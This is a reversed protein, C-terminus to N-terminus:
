RLQETASRGSASPSVRMNRRMMELGRHLRSTATGYPIDLIEAVEPLPLDLYYHLQHPFILLADGEELSFLNTEVGVTGGERLCLILVFRDHQDYKGSVQSIGEHGGLEHVPRSRHFCLINDPLFTHQGRTGSFYNEPSPFRRASTAINKLLTSRRAAANM